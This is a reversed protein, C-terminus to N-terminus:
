HHVPGLVSVIISYSVAKGVACGVNPARGGKAGRGCCDAKEAVGISDASRRQPAQPRGHTKKAIGKGVQMPHVSTWTGIPLQTLTLSLFDTRTILPGISTALRCNRFRLACNVLEVLLISGLTLPLDTFVLVRGM